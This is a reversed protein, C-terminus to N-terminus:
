ARVQSWLAVNTAAASSYHEDAAVVIARLGALASVMDAVDDRWSAYAAGQADSARGSWDAALDAQAQAIDAALALLDRQCGALDALAVRLEALDVDFATM